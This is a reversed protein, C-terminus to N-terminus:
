LTKEYIRWRRYLPCGIDTWPKNMAENDELIWSAEGFVVHKHKIARTFSEHTFAAFVGKQRFEKKVGLTIIRVSPLFRKGILLKILGPILRGSWNYKLIWNIDPLALMFGAPKGDKEAIYAFAPDIIMKMDKAAFKFEEKTMPFFGWNDEWASNYIDFCTDIEQDFKKLDLNRFIFGSDDKAKKAKELKEPSIKKFGDQHIFYAVLDKASKFGATEHLNVYYLPNWTTMITPHQSQGRVLIGVEHNTSPNMPGRMHTLNRKKLWDAATDFLLAAVEQDEICEFFGYFGVKDKHFDNHGRNEIAAIRGVPKKGKYAMFCQIEARKYFPNHKTDLNEKVAARLPAVYKPHEKKNYIHWPVDIFKNLDKNNTVTVINIASNSPM